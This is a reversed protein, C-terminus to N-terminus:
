ARGRAGRRVEYRRDYLDAVDLPEQGQEKALLDVTEQPAHDRRGLEGPGREHRPRSSSQADEESLGEHDVYYGPAIRRPARQDVARGQGLGRHVAQVRGGQRRGRAGRDPRLPALRRRPGRASRAPVTRSYKALYTKVQAQGLPAVEVQKSGLANAYVDDVSAM